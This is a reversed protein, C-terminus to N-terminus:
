ARAAEKEKNDRRFEPALAALFWLGCAIVAGGVVGIIIMKLNATLFNDMKGQAETHRVYNLFATGEQIEQMHAYVAQYIAYTAQIASDLEDKVTGLDTSEANLLRAIKKELDAITTELSRKTTYYAAQQQVLQNYYATTDTTGRSGDSEQMSVFIRDNKYSDLIEKTEAINANVEDLSLRANTLQYEYSSVLEAPNQAIGEAFVYSYLYDIHTDSVTQLAEMWDRLTHGTVASRYNKEQISKNNCYNYLNQEATRLQELSELIDMDETDIISIEDTPLRTDAYTRVLYENYSILIRNLLTKLESDKLDLKVKEEEDGFGNKLKVIFQNSYTLQMDQAESYANNSKSDLMGSILEQQQRSKETLIRQITINKRLQEADVKQSLTMGDLANNLVYSSTVQNLDLSTLDPATLDTVQRFLQTVDNALQAQTIREREKKTSAMELLDEWSYRLEYDLTAVTSVTLEPHRIQYLLLPTCFGVVMCLVIVWAFVRAKLKMNHFVRGLDISDEEVQGPTNLVLQIQRDKETGNNEM